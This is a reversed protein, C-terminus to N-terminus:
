VQIFHLFVHWQPLYCGKSRERDIASFSLYLIQLDFFCLFQSGKLFSPQIWLLFITKVTHGIHDIPQPEPSPEIWFLIRILKLFLKQGFNGRYLWSRPLHLRNQIHLDLCDRYLYLNYCSKPNFGENWQDSIMALERFLGEQDFLGPLFCDLESFALYLKFLIQAM